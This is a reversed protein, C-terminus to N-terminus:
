NGWVRIIKVTVTATDTAHYNTIRGKLARDYPIKYLKAEQMNAPDILDVSASVRQGLHLSVSPTANSFTKAVNNKRPFYMAGGADTGAYTPHASGELSWPFKDIAVALWLEKENTPNLNFDFSTKAPVSVANVLTEFTIMNNMAIHMFRSRKDLSSM